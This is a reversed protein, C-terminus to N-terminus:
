RSPRPGSTTFAPPANRSLPLDRRPGEFSPLLTGSATAPRTEHDAPLAPHSILHGRIDAPLEHWHPTFSLLVCDRRHDGTNAHTGHLLRYDTVVADGAGLALTVQGPQDTMAASGPDLGASEDSHAEPLVRHLPVSAAHSGPLVRLAGTRATTDCLYCLVAIQPPDQLYSVPHDWAWWDQHWWLPPSHPDKVSVYGSIWRLDRAGAAQGIRPHGALILGVLEDDWRLPVLTNNPRQCAIGGPHRVAQEAAIRARHLSEGALLGPLVVFGSSRFERAQEATDRDARTVVTM